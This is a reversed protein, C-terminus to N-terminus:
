PEVAHGKAIVHFQGLQQLVIKAVALDIVQVGRWWQRQQRHKEWRAPDIRVPQAAHNRRSPAKAVPYDQHGSELRM